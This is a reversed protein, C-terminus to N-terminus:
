EKENLEDYQAVLDANAGVYQEAIEGLLNNPSMRRVYAIKQLAEFTSPKFAATFQRSKREGNFRSIRGIKNM